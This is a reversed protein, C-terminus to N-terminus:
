CHASQGSKWLSIISNRRPYSSPKTVSIQPSFCHLFLFLCGNERRGQQIARGKRWEMQSLCLNGVPYARHCHTGFLLTTSPLWCHQAKQVLTILQVVPLALCPGLKGMVLGPPQMIRPRSVRTSIRVCVSVQGCHVWTCRWSWTRVRNYLDNGQLISIESALLNM